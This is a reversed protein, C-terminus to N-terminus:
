KVPPTEKKPKKVEKNKRQQGKAMITRRTHHFACLLVSTHARHIKKLAIIKLARSGPLYARSQSFMRRDPRYDPPQPRRCASSRMRRMVLEHKQKM